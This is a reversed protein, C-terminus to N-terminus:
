DASSLIKRIRELDAPTDVGAPIFEVARAMAIARGAELFRLQELKETTELLSPSMQAFAKLAGARYAYLGVHRKWQTGGTIAQELTSGRPFPIVSRSFYLAHGSHNLVVKVVNPDSVEAAQQIPYYLSAVDALPSNQLLEAVQDLCAPPMQPEDGQLNVVLTEAPWGMLGICEALRDSGSQHDASTMLAVAGFSEAMDRVEVSDTAIIVSEANAQSARRYVHEILSRGDIDALPKNPLRQAALRAPIVIHYPTTM